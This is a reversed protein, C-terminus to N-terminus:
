LLKVLSINIQSEAWRMSEISTLAEKTSPISLSVINNEDANDKDDMANNEHTLTRIIDEHTLSYCLLENVNVEKILDLQELINRIKHLWRRISCIRFNYAWYQCIRTKISQQTVDHLMKGVTKFQKKNINEWAIRIKYAVGKLTLGGLFNTVNNDDSLLNLLM